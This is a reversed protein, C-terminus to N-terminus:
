FSLIVHRIIGGINGHLKARQAKLLRIETEVERLEDKTTSDGEKARVRNRLRTKAEQLKMLHEEIGNDLVVGAKTKGIKKKDRAIEVQLCVELPNRKTDINLIYELLQAAHSPHVNPIRLVGAGEDILPKWWKNVIAQHRKLDQQYRTTGEDAWLTTALAIRPSYGPGCIAQFTTINRKSSGSFRNDSVKQLYIVGALAERRLYRPYV